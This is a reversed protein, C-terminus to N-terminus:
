AAFKETVSFAKQAPALTKDSHKTKSQRQATDRTEGKLVSDIKRLQSQSDRWIFHFSQDIGSVSPRGLYSTFSIRTGLQYTQCSIRDRAHILDRNSVFPRNPGNARV